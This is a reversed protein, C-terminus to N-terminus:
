SQFFVQFLASMAEGIRALGDEAGQLAAFRPGHLLQYDGAGIRIPRGYVPGNFKELLQADDLAKLDAPFVLQLQGVSKAAVMVM